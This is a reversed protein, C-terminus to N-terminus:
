EADVASPDDGSLAHKTNEQWLRTAVSLPDIEYEQWWLREDGRTHNQRHHIACLPVTFEDSVSSRTRRGRLLTIVPTDPSIGVRGSPTPKMLRYWEIWVASPIRGKRQPSIRATSALLLVQRRWERNTWLCRQTDGGSHARDRYAVSRNSLLWLHQRFIEWIDAVM